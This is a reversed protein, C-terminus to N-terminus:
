EWEGWVTDVIRAVSPIAFDELADAAPRPIHPTAIRVIPSDLSWCAEQAAPSAIERDVSWMGSAATTAVPFERAAAMLQNRRTQSAPNVAISQLWCM